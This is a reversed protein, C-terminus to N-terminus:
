KPLGTNIDLNKKRAYAIRAPGYLAQVQKYEPSSPNANHLMKVHETFPESLSAISDAANAQGGPHRPAVDLYSGRPVVYLDEQELGINGYEDKKPIDWRRLSGALPNGPGVVTDDWAPPTKARLADVARSWEALIEDDSMGALRDKRDEEETMARVKDNYEQEPNPM